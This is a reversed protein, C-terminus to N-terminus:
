HVGGEAALPQLKLGMSAERERGRVRVEIFRVAVRNGEKESNDKYEVGSPARLPLSFLRHLGAFSCRGLFCLSLFFGYCEIVSRSTVQHEEGLAWSEM